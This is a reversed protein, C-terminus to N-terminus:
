GTTRWFTRAVRLSHTLVLRVPRIFYDLFDRHQPLSIVGTRPDPPQPNALNFGILPHAPQPNTPDLGASPLSPQPDTPNLGTLPHPPLPDPPDHRKSPSPPQPDPPNHGKPPSPPQPDPPNHSIPLKPPYTPAGASAHATPAAAVITAVLASGAMVMKGVAERRSPLGADLATGSGAVMLGAEKLEELAQLVLKRDAPGGCKAEVVRMLDDVTKSGDSNEWVAAATNNLCHVKDNIKDYLVVEEPLNEAFIGSKRALPKVTAEM